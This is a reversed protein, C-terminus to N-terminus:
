FLTPKMAKALQECVGAVKTLMADHDRQNLSQQEVMLEAIKMDLQGAFILQEADTLGLKKIQKFQNVIINKLKKQQDIDSALKIAKLACEHQCSELSREQQSEIMPKVADFIIQEADLKAKVIETQLEIKDLEKIQMVKVPDGFTLEGLRVLRFPCNKPFKAQASKAADQLENHTYNGHNISCALFRDALDDRLAKGLINLFKQVESEGVLAIKRAADADDRIQVEAQAKVNLDRVRKLKPTEYDKELVLNLAVPDLRVKRLSDHIWYGPWPRPRQDTRVVYQSSNRSNFFVWKEHSPCQLTRLLDLWTRPQEFVLQSLIEIATTSTPMTTKEQPLPQTATPFVASCPSPVCGWGLLRCDLALAQFDAPLPLAFDTLLRELAAVAEAADGETVENTHAAKNRLRLLDIADSEREATFVAAFAQRWNLQLLKLWIVPDDSELLEARSWKQRLAYEPLFPLVGLKLFDSGYHDELQQVIPERLERVLIHLVFSVFDTPRKPTIMM